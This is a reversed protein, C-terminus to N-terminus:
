IVKYKILDSIEDETMKPNESKLFNMGSVTGDVINQKIANLTKEDGSMSLMKIYDNSLIFEIQFNRVNGPYTQENYERLVAAWMEKLIILRQRETKSFKKLLYLFLKKRM